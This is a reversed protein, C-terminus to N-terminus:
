VFPSLEDNWGREYMIHVAGNLQECDMDYKTAKVILENNFIM